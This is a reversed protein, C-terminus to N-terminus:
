KRVFWVIVNIVVTLVISVLISTAAPIYVETKTGKIHFDGPLKGLPLGIWLLVGVLVLGIGCIVFWKALNM